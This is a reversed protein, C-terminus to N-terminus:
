GRLNSWISRFIEMPEEQVFHFVLWCVYTIICVVSCICEYSTNSLKKIQWVISRNLHLRSNVTIKQVQECIREQQARCWKWLLQTVDDDVQIKKIVPTLSIPRYNNLNSRVGKKYVPVVKLIKFARPNTSERICINIITTLPNLIINIIKRYADACNSNKAQNVLKVEM